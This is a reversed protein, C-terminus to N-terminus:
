LNLAHLATSHILTERLEHRLVVSLNIEVDPPECTPRRFGLIEKLVRKEPGISGIPFQRFVGIHSGPQEFDSRVETLVVESTQSAMRIHSQMLHQRRNLLGQAPRIPEPMVVRFLKQERLVRFPMHEGDNVSQRHLLFGCQDLALEM